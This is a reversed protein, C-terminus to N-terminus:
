NWRVRSNKIVKSAVVFKEDGKTILVFYKIFLIVCFSM